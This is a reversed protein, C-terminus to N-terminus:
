RPWVGTAHCVDVADAARAGCGRDGPSCVNLSAAYQEGCTAPRSLPVVPLPMAAVVATRPTAPASAGAADGFILPWLLLLATMTAACILANRM